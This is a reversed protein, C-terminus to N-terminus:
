NLGDPGIPLSPTLDQAPPDAPVKPRGSPLAPLLLQLCSDAGTLTAFDASQLTARLQARAQGWISHIPCVGSRRCADPSMLCDNLVIEGIVAEVVQLLNVQGPHPRLRYGGRAGQVIDIIGAHALQQAIKGLFPNPIEMAAAIAKRSVMVGQGRLALYLTCRIAYEGARTLRM